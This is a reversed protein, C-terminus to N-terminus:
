PSKLVIRRVCIRKSASRWYFAQGSLTGMQINLVDKGRDSTTSFYQDAYTCLLDRNLIKVVGTSCGDDVPKAIVPYTFKREVLGIWSFRDKCVDEKSVLYQTAVTFGEQRLFSNTKHKDITLATTKVGSGNYPIDLSELIKQISGDEGPRGHLAIFVFDVYSALLDYSLEQPTFIADRGYLQTINKARERFSQLLVDKGDFGEPNLLCKHIDDANDKLLLAIPVIFLRHLQVSGSLFIPLPKYIKSASLKTYVNRGSELSIHRESSFGGM